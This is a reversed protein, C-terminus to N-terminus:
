SRDVHGLGLSGMHSTSVRFGSYRTADEVVPYPSASGPLSEQGARMIKIQERQLHATYGAIALALVAALLQYDM